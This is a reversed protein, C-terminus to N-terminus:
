AGDREQRYRAAHSEIVAQRDADLQRRKRHAFRSIAAVDLAALVGIGFLVLLMLGVYMTVQWAYAEQEPTIEKQEPQLVPKAHDLFFWGVLLVAFFAMLVSCWLRRFAQKRIYLRDEPTWGRDPSNLAQLTNRQRLAYYGALVLLLAALLLGLSLEALNV